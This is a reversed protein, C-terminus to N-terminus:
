VVKEVVKRLEEMGDDPLAEVVGKHGPSMRTDVTCGEKVCDCQCGEACWCSCHVPLIEGTFEDTRDIATHQHM